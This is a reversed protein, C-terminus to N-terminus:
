VQREDEVEGFGHERLMADLQQRVFNNITKIKIAYKISSISLTPYKKQIEKWSLKLIEKDIYLLAAILNDSLEERTPLKIEKGGAVYILKVFASIDLAKYLQVLDDSKFKELMFLNVINWLLDAENSKKKNIVEQLSALHPTFYSIGIDKKKNM